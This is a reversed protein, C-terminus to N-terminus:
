AIPLLDVRSARLRGDDQASISFEVLRGAIVEAPASDEGLSGFHFFVNAENEAYAIFGYRERVNVITGRRVHETSDGPQSLPSKPPHEPVVSPTVLTSLSTGLELSIESAMLAHSANAFRDWSDASRFLPTRDKIFSLSSRVRTIDGAKYSNYRALSRMAVTASRLVADILKRDHSGADILSRGCHFGTLSKDLAAQPQKQELENEAWRRWSDVLATTVIRQMKISKTELAEELFEQGRAYDRQWVYFAGLALATDTNALCKHAGLELEIAAPLDHGARALHGAYFHAVAARHEESDAESMASRYRASARTIDGQRSALFAEVRDVEFFGPNLARARAIFNEAGDFDESRTFRLALRLLHATPEDDATRIRIVNPDLKRDGEALRHEERDHLYASERALVQKMLNSEHDARPLYARATASLELVDADSSDPSPTRTLLSGQALQQASGRLVDVSIASVVALEDFSIARDLSRLIALILKADTSLAEYVNDVCFRLLEGQNRLTDQPMRGSEVSLIFWRIALPSCRLQALTRSLTASDMGALAAQRRRFSFKRFLLAADSERLGNLPFRREVQGIGVRSTFLFTVSTPLADYLDLVESGQASELNDVVVLCQLGSLYDALEAVSGSFSADIAKGLAQTAGTIDRLSGSIARVGGATLVENKLSVWLVAEFPPEASDVLQYAVQLALATKGIGGEGTVTIMRDRGRVLLAVISGVDESRGVLGTEDYDALPLNHLVREQPAPSSEFSPEWDRDEQLRRKVDRTLSFYRSAFLGLFDDTIDLDDIHLPRGHMVRNRIGVLKDMGPLNRSLEDGLDRPIVASHRLLIDYAQRLHLYHAVSLSVDGGEDSARRDEVADFDAGLVVQPELHDLLHEDIFFRLDQEFADILQFARAKSYITEM